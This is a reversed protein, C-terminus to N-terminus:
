RAVRHAPIMSRVADVTRQHWRGPRGLMFHGAGPVSEFRAHAEDAGRRRARAVGDRADAASTWRDRTGHLVLLRRDTPILDAEHEPWWPALAVVGVVGPTAALHAAVRGGMSHGVLVVPTDPHTRALTRLAHRGDAVATLDPANWGRVGYRLRHVAVDPLARHLAAAFPWMRVNSLRWPASAQTSRPKGGPLVLVAADAPRGTEPGGHWTLHM